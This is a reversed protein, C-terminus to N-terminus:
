EGNVLRMRSRFYEKWDRPLAAVQLALRLSALEEPGWRKLVYLRTIESVPVANPDRSIVKIEDGAGVEGERTVALYFGGRGSALFRKVM